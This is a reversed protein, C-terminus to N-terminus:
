IKDSSNEALKEEEEQRREGLPGFGHCKLWVHPDSEQSGHYIM